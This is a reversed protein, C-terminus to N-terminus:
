ENEEQIQWTDEGFPEGLLREVYAVREAANEWNGRLIGLIERCAVRMAAAHMLAELAGHDHKESINIEAIFEGIHKWFLAAAEPISDPNKITVEGTSLNIEVNGDQTSIKKDFNFQFQDTSFIGRPKFYYNPNHTFIYNGTSVGGSGTTTRTPNTWTPFSTQKLLNTTNQLQTLYNLSTKQDAKVLNELESHAEEADKEENKLKNYSKKLMSIFQNSM